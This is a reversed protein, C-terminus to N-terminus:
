KPLQDRAAYSECSSCVYQCASSQKWHSGPMTKCMCLMPTNVCDGFKSIAPKVECICAWTVAIAHQNYGCLYSPRRPLSTHRIAALSAQPQSVSGYSGVHFGCPVWMYVLTCRVKFGKAIIYTESNGPKSTAPKFVHVEQFLCGMLYLACVTPHEFLTFAKLLFSGGEALAGLATVMECFHLSATSMEQLM